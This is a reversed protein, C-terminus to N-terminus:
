SIITKGTRTAGAITKFSNDLVTIIPFISFDNCDVKTIASRSLHHHLHLFLEKRGESNGTNCQIAYHTKANLNSCPRWSSKRCNTPDSVISKYIQRGGQLVM